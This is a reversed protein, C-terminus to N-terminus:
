SRVLQTGQRDADEVFLGYKKMKKFLTTRNIDLARATEHRNWGCAQLARLIFEREPAELAKKLPRIQRSDGDVEGAGEEGPRTHCPCTRLAPAEGGGPPAERGGRPGEEAVTADLAQVIASRLQSAPLPFRLVSSAGLRFAQSIRESQMRTSLLIVPLKPYKRRIYSFLELADPETLDVGILVLGPLSPLMQLADRENSTEVPEYGSARLMSGLMARASPEPHILLIRIRTM